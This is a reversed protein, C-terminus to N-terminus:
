PVTYIIEVRGNAANAVAVQGFGGIAIDLPLNLQGPATGWAGYSGLYDGTLPDLIQVNNMYCDAAHLLGQPDVALSQIRVFRGQWYWTTGMMGGKEVKGGFSRLFNGQLDFVQVLYHGRDAVYLEGFEAGNADTRYAIALAMPSRFQGVGDGGSGINLLATGNPDYVRVTNSLTDVVYLNESRDVALDNPMKIIGDGITAIRIGDINYVQVNDHGNSGVYINGSSDVAVGLPRGLNKLEGILSLNPDYIFISGVKADSVYCYGSPGWTLRTPYRNVHMIEFPDETPPPQNPEPPQGCSFYERIFAFLDNFQKEKKANEEIWLCWDVQQWDLGLFKWSFIELDDINVIDDHNLDSQDAAAYARDPGADLGPVYELPSLNLVTVLLALVMLTKFRAKAARPQPGLFRM